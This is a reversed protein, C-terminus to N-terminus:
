DHLRVEVCKWIITNFHTQYPADHPLPFAAPSPFIVGRGVYLLEKGGESLYGQTIAQQLYRRGDM